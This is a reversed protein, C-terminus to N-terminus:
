GVVMLVGMFAVLSVALAVSSVVAPMDKEYGCMKTFVVAVSAPPCALIILLVKRALLPVPLSRYLLIGLALNVFVRLGLVVCGDRLEERPIRVELMIGIMLMTLFANGKGMMEAAGRVVAPLELHFLSLVFIAMYTDFCVSKSLTRILRKLDLRKEGCAVSDAISYIGGLGMVANGADFMCLYAVGAGPFFTQVFPLAVSGVNYGAANIMYAARTRPDAKGSALYGLGALLLNCAFALGIMLLTLSSIHVTNAGNLVACPLTIYVIVKSLVDGDAKKFVGAQKLFFGMAIALVFHFCEMLVPAMDEM